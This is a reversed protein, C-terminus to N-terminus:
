IFFTIVEETGITNYCEQEDKKDNDKQKKPPM